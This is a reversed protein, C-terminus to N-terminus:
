IFANWFINPIAMITQEGKISKHFDIYKVRFIHKMYEIGAAQRAEYKYHFDEEDLELEFKDDFRGLRIVNGKFASM